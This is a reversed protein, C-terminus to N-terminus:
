KQGMHIAAIGFSLNKFEVNKFGCDVMMGALTHQDPFERISEILYKYADKQGAIMAGLQPIIHVSYADYIPKLWFAAHSFELCLFRGGPKLIRHIESLGQHPNSMNRLGFAVTLADVSNDDFPLTEGYGAVWGINRKQYNTAEMMGVCPDCVIAKAGFSAFSAALDGTGGALDVITENYQPNILKVCKAKWLRHIGMSMIDNMLDYRPAVVDFMGRVERRHQDEHDQDQSFQTSPSSTV